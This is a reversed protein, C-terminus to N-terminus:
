SIEGWHRAPRCAPIGGDKGLFLSSHRRVGVRIRNDPSVVLVDPAVRERVSINVPVIRYPLEAKEPAMTIERGQPITRFYLDIMVM